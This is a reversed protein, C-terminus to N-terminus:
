TPWDEGNLFPEPEQPPVDPWDFLEGPGPPPPPEPVSFESPLLSPPTETSEAPSPAEVVIMTEGEPLCGVLWITLFVVLRKM